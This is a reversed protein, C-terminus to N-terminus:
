PQVDMVQNFETLDLMRKVQGQPRAVILDWAEKKATEQAIVLMGLGASDIATVQDMDLTCRTCNHAGVSSLMERFAGHDEFTLKGSLTFKIESGAIDSKHQM